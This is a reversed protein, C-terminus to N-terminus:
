EDPEASPAIEAANDAALEFTVRVNRLHTRMAAAARAGNDNEIAALIKAHERLASGGIHSRYHYPGGIKQHLIDHLSNILTILVKNKSIEAIRTHFKRDLDVARDFEDHDLAAAFEKHIEALERKDQGVATSAAINSLEPEMVERVQLLEVVQERHEILWPLWLLGGGGTKWTEKVVFAGAGQRVEVLGLQNLVRLGERVSSRGVGLTKALEREPPLREGAGLIGNTILQLVQRFVGDSLRVPAIAEFKSV